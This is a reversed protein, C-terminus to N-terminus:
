DYKWYQQELFRNNRIISEKIKVVNIDLSQKIRNTMEAKNDKLSQSYKGFLEDYNEPVYLQAFDFVEKIRLFEELGNFDYDVFVLLENTFLSGLSEKGIRGYKHIFVFSEGLLKEAVLFTDLNEVICIRRTEIKEANCAFLQFKKTYDELNVENDNIKVKEFGRLMFIPTSVTKQIKSNRFKRVNDSKDKVEIDEPFYIKFFSEFETIKKVEYRFGRGSKTKELILSSVM